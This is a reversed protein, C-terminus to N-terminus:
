LSKYKFALIEKPFATEASKNYADERGYRRPRHRVNEKSVHSHCRQERQDM